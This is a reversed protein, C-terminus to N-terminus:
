TQNYKRFKSQGRVVANSLLESSKSLYEAPMM